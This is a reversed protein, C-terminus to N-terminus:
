QKVFGLCKMRTKWDKAAVEGHPCLVSQPVSVGDRGLILPRAKGRKWRNLDLVGSACAAVTPTHRKGVRADRPCFFCKTGIPLPTIALATL